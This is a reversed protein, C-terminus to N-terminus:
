CYHFFLPSNNAQLCFNVHFLKLNCSDGVQLNDIDDLVKVGQSTKDSQNNVADQVFCLFSNTVM